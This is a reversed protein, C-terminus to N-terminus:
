KIPWGWIRFVDNLEVLTKIEVEAHYSPTLKVDKFPGRKIQVTRFGLPKIGIFDKNPNDGIYVIDSPHKGEIDAIKLFCYPSPKSHERGYRHTIFYKKLRSELNLARIKNYQVVKNGDTVVYIPNGNLQRLIQEADSSLTITPSHMRYVSLCKRVNRQTKIGYYQLTYDFVAGRGKEELVRCMFFFAEKSRIGFVDSLYNSVALFGSRVFTIEEYLTDDLDFVYVSM